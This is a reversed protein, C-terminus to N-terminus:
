HWQYLQSIWKFDEKYFFSGIELSGTKMLILTTISSCSTATPQSAKGSHREIMSYVIDEGKVSLPSPVEFPTQWGVSKMTM